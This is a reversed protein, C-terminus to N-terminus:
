PTTATQQGGFAFWLVVILVVVVVIGVVWKTTNSMEGEKPQTFPQAPM